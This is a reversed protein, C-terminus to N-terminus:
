LMVWIGLYFASTVLYVLGSASEGLNDHARRHIILAAILLTIMGVVAALGIPRWYIGGLVGVSAAAELIGIVRYRNWPIGFHEAATRMQATGSLKMAAPAACMLAYVASVGIFISNM